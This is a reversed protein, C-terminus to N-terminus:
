QPKQESDKRPENSQDKYISYQEQPRKLKVTIDQTPQDIDYDEGFSQFGSALVQIRLKGYPVGQYSAKGESDTKLQLGGKEQTGKENVPHLVVSANRVPKGNYDKLVLFNLTSTKQEASAVAVLLVTVALIGLLKKM